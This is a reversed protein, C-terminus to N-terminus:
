RQQQQQMQPSCANMLFTFFALLEGRERSYREQLRFTADVYDSREVNTNFDILKLFNIEWRSIQSVSVNSIRLARLFDENWVPEDFCLKAAVVFGSLVSPQWNLRTLEFNQNAVLRDLYIVMAVLCSNPLSLQRCITEIYDKMEGLVQTKAAALGGAADLHADAAIPRMQAELHLACADCVTSRTAERTAEAQPLESEQQELQQLVGYSKNKRMGGQGGAGSASAPYVDSRGMTQLTAAASINRRMRSMTREDLSKNLLALSDATSGGGSAAGRDAATGSGSGASASSSTGSSASEWSPAAIEITPM